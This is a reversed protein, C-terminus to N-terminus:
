SVASRLHSSFTPESGTGARPIRQTAASCVARHRIRKQQLLQLEPPSDVREDLIFAHQESFKNHKELSKCIEKQDVVPASLKGDEKDRVHYGCVKKGYKSTEDTYLSTDKSEKVVEAIQKLPRYDSVVTVRRVRRRKFIPSASPVSDADFLDPSNSFLDPSNPPVSFLDPSYPEPSNPPWSFLDLSNPPLSFLDPSNPPLTSSGSSPPLTSSGSSVILIPSCNIDDDSMVSLETVHTLIALAEEDM